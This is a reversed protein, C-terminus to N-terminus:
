LSGAAFGAADRLFGEDSPESLVQTVEIELKARAVNADDIGALVNIGQLRGPRIRGGGTLGQIRRVDLKSAAPPILLTFEKRDTTGTIDSRIYRKV